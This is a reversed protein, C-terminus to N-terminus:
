SQIFFHLRDIYHFARGIQLHMYSIIENMHFHWIPFDISVFLLDNIAQMSLWKLSTQSKAVWHVTVWPSRKGHLKEPLSVPTPEMEEELSSGLGPDFRPRKFQCASEKGGVGGQFGGNLFHCGVRTNKGPVDWLYFLRTPQLGHPRLGTPCLQAVLCCCASWTLPILCYTDKRSQSIKSVM